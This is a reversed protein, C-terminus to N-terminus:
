PVQELAIEPAPVVPPSHGPLTKKAMEDKLRQWTEAQMKKRAAAVSADALPRCASAAEYHLKVRTESKPQKDRLREAQQELFQVADRIDQLGADLEKNAAAVEESKLNPTTLRKRATEIKKLGDEKLAQGWRLAADASEPRNPAQQIIQDFIARAEARKGAEKLALGYHYQLLVVWDSRASDKALASEHQQRCQNLLDAAQQAQNQGRLLAALRVVALPAVPAAKLPDGTFRRLENIAGNVDNAQALVKGREFVAQPFLADKAFRQMLQDYAARASALAKVKDPPQALRAALRRPGYAL